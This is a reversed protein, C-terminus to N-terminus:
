QAIEKFFEDIEIVNIKSLELINMAECKKTLNADNTILYHSNSASLFHKMDTNFNSPQNKKNFNEGYAGRPNTFNLLNYVIFQKESIGAVDYDKALFRFYNKIFPLGKKINKASLTNFEIIGKILLEFEDRQAKPLTTYFANDSLKLKRVSNNFQNVFESEDTHKWAKLLLDQLAAPNLINGQQEIHSKLVSNNDVQDIDINQPSFQINVAPFPMNESRQQKEDERIKYFFSFIDFNKDSRKIVQQEILKYCDLSEIYILFTGDSFENALFYLDETIRAEDTSRSLDLLHAESLPIKYITKLKKFLKWKEMAIANKEKCLYINQKLNQIANWDFYLYDDELFDESNCQM